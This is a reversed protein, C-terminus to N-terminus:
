AESVTEGSTSSLNRGGDRGTHQCLPVVLQRTEVKAHAKGRVGPALLRDPLTEERRRAARGLKADRRGRSGVESPARGKVADEDTM